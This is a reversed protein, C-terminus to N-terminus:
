PLFIEPQLFAYKEPYLFFALIRFAVLHFVYIELTWRGMVQLPLVYPSAFWRGPRFGQLIIFLGVLGAALTLYHDGAMVPLTLAQFLYSVVVMAALLVAQAGARADGPERRRQAGYLAWLFGIAGYELIYATPIALAAFAAFVAIFALGSSFAAREMYPMAARVAALTFLINFPMVYGSFVIASTSAITGGVLWSQPVPRVGAYGILYFWVPASLRGIVRLWQEEPFFFYGLHDAIMTLLAFVKLVDHATLAGGYSRLIEPKKMGAKWSM